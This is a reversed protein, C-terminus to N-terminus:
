AMMNGTLEIHFVGVVSFLSEMSQGLFVKELVSQSLCEDVALM